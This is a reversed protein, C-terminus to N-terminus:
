AYFNKGYKKQSLGSLDAWKLVGGKDKPYGCAFLALLDVSRVEVVIGGELLANAAVTQGELLMKMLEDVSLATLGAGDQGKCIEQWLSDENLADADIRELLARAASEEPLIACTQKVGLAACIKAPGMPLGYLLFAKEVEAPSNGTCMMQIGVDVMSGLLAEAPLIAADACAVPIKKLDGALCLISGAVEAATKHGSVIEVVKTTWPANVFHMAVFNEPHDLHEAAATVPLYAPTCGVVMCEASIVQNLYRMTQEPAAGNTILVVDADALADDASPAMSVKQLLTEPSAKLRKKEALKELRSQLHAKGADLVDASDQIVVEFTGKRLLAETLEQGLADFGIVGIKEMKRPVFSKPLRKKAKTSIGQLEFSNLFGEKEPTFVIDSFLKLELKLAADVGKAMKEELVQFVAVAGPLMRGNTSRLYAEKCAAIAEQERSLEVSPRAFSVEKRIMKNLLELAAQRLDEGPAILEDVLGLELAQQPVINKAYLIMDLARAGILDLTRTTGSGGPFLGVGVEPLAFVTGPGNVAVRAQCSLALEMGGGMCVGDVAAVSPVPLERLQKMVWQNVEIGKFADLWRRGDTYMGKLDGGAHFHGPKGSIVIVGDIKKQRILDELEYVAHVFDETFDESWTNVPSDKINFVVWAIREDVSVTVTKYEM